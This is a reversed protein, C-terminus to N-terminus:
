RARRVTAGASVDGGCAIGALGIGLQAIAARFGAVGARPGARDDPKRGGDPVGAHRRPLDMSFLSPTM